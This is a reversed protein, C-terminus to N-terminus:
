AGVLEILTEITWDTPRNAIRLLEVRLEHGEYGIFQDYGFLTEILADFLQNASLGFM